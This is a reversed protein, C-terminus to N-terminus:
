VATRRRRALAVGSLVMAVSIIGLGALGAVPMSGAPSVELELPDTTIVTDGYKYTCVYTGRNVEEISDFILTRSTQGTLEDDDHYWHYDLGIPATLVVNMEAEILSKSCKIRNLSQEKIVNVLDWKWNGALDRIGWDWSSNDQYEWIWWGAFGYQACKEFHWEWIEPGSYGQTSVIHDILWDEHGPGKFDTSIIRSANEPGLIGVIAELYSFGDTAPDCFRFTTMLWYDPPLALDDVIWKELNTFASLRTMPMRPSLANQLIPIMIPSAKPRHGAAKFEPWVYKVFQETYSIVEPGADDWLVPEASGLQYNGCMCWMAIGEPHNVKGEVYEIIQTYWTASEDWPTEDPVPFWPIGPQGIHNASDVSYPIWMNNMLEINISVGSDYCDDIFAALNDLFSVSAWEALPQGAEPGQGGHLLTWPMHVHLDIFNINTTSVLEQLATIVRTRDQAYNPLWPYGEEGPVLKPDFHFGRLAPRPPPSSTYRGSAPQASAAASALAVLVAGAIMLILVATGRVSMFM